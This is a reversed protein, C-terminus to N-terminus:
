PKVNEKPKPNALRQLLMVTAGVVEGMAEGVLITAEAEVLAVDVVVMATTVGPSSLAHQHQISCAAEVHELHKIQM